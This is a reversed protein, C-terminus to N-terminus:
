RNLLRGEVSLFDFIAQAALEHGAPSFHMSNLLLASPEGASTALHDRFIPLLDLFPVDHELAFQALISQPSPGRLPEDMLQLRHPTCVIILPVSAKRTATVIDTMDVFTTKWGRQVIDADPDRLLRTASVLSWYFWMEDKGPRDRAAGWVQAARYLGSWDVPSRPPPEFGRTYGGFKELQFKGLVDNLCFVQVVLDPDYQLGENVLLDHEHWPSYAPVSANITTVVAQFDSERALQEVRRVFCAEEDVKSGFTVSDGLFLIRRENAVKELPIDPGRLGRSNIRIVASGDPGSAGPRPTWGRTAHWIFIERQHHIPRVVIATLRDVSLVFIIPLSALALKATFSHKTRTTRAIAILGAAILAGAAHLTLAHRLGALEYNRLLFGFEHAELRLGLLVTVLGLYACAALLCAQLRRSNRSDNPASSVPLKDNESM